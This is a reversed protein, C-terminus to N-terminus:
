RSPYADSGARFMVSLDGWTDGGREGPRAVTSTRWLERGTRADLGVIYCTDDRFRGCGAMGTVITGDAVIPGSTFTYGAGDTGVTTDWRVEGTGTDLGVTHADVTNLIILDEYIALSRMQASTRRREDIDRRYEWLLDGNRADLAHVVNGPNAIYMVGDHVLPTTQSVGPEIGWSWALRMEGVNGTDIEDLPSYGWGDLTRRWSLWDSPDPAQLEADSVPSVDRVQAQGSLGALMAVGACVCVVFPLRNRM